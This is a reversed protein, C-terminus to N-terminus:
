IFYRCILSPQSACRGEFLVDDIAKKAFLQQMPDMKRLQNAWAKGQTDHEDELSEKLLSNTALTILENKKAEERRRKTAAGKGTLPVSGDATLSSASKEENPRESCSETPVANTTTM